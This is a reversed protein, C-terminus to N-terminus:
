KKSKKIPIDVQLAKRLGYFIEYNNAGLRIKPFLNAQTRERFCWRVVAKGTAESEEISSIVNLEYLFQLFDNESSMFKPRDSSISNFDNDMKKFAEVFYNYTFRYNGNLYSFFRLFMEYDSQKYYFSLQDKIEGLLYNSYDRQFSQSNFDDLSFFKKEPNDTSNAKLLQLMTFIDRPRHYSLRLFSIFSTMQGSPLAFELTKADWRFYYDWSKTATFDEGECQTSIMKDVASFLSSRRHSDYNTNWNLVIANDRIKANPNHLSISEFIDPRILLVYRCSGPSDKINPFFENNLSLIALSLGKICELYEQHEIDAPRVDIGDIFMLHDKELKLENIADKFKKIIYYMNRQFSSRTGKEEHSTEISAKIGAYEEYKAFLEVAKNSGIVMQIASEVEPDFSKMFYEDIAENLKSFKGFKGSTIKHLLGSENEIIKKSVLLLLIMEWITHYDSFLLHNERKLFLFDRYDTEKVYKLESSIGNYEENSLFVAYSTKGTGKEGIIFSVDDSCVRNLNSDKVFWKKFKEKQKRKRYNQADTYGFDLESILKM